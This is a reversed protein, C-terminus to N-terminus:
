NPIQICADSSPRPQRAGRRDVRAGNGDCPRRRAGRCRSSGGGVECRGRGELVSVAPFKRLLVSRGIEIDADESRRLNGSASILITSSARESRTRGDSAHLRPRRRRRQCSRGSSRDSRHFRERDTGRRTECGIKRNSEEVDDLAADESTPRRRLIRDSVSGEAPDSSSRMRDGAARKPDRGAVDGVRRACSVAPVRSRRERRVSQAGGPMRAPSPRCPVFATSQRNRVGFAAAGEVVRCRDEVSRSGGLAPLHFAVRGPLRPGSTPRVIRRVADARTTRFCTGCATSTSSAEHFPRKPRNWRPIGVDLSTPRSTRADLTTDAHRIRWASLRRLESGSAM